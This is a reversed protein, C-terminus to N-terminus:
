DHEYDEVEVSGDNSITVRVHDSFVSEFVDSDIASHIERFKKAVEALPSKKYELSWTDQHKQSAPDYIAIDNVGFECSDGDNFYPTYQTWTVSKIEPNADFLHKYEQYFADKGLSQM